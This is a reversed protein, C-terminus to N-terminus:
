KAAKKFNLADECLSRVAAAASALQKEKQYQLIRPILNADAASNGILITRKQQKEMSM